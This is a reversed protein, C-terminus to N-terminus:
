QLDISVDRSTVLLDMLSSAVAHVDFGRLNSPTASQIIHHPCLRPAWASNQWEQKPYIAVLPKNFASAIHTLATDVSIIAESNKCLWFLKDIDNDTNIFSIESPLDSSWSSTIKESSPTVIIKINTSKGATQTIIQSLEITEDRTLSRNPNNDAAFPNILVFPKQSNKYLNNDIVPKIYTAISEETDKKYIYKIAIISKHVVHKPNEQSDNESYITPNKPNILKLLIRTKESKFGNRFTIVYDFKQLNLQIAIFLTNTLSKTNIEWIKSPIKTRSWYKFASDSALIHLDLKEDITSAISAFASNIIADGLKGDLALLLIKM